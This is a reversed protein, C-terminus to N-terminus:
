PKVTEAATVKGNNMTMMFATKVTNHNKDFSTDGTVGEFNKTKALNDKIDVSTKAGKAANAVLYVSDYALAAFTSPEENYKARYAELFAKAKDSVDVTSSFGSIFYINSAKAPTAQQVFEEGNFGDGGVIPKDIGMGRAQNVIKGAETYYGPVIIADFDKGKM